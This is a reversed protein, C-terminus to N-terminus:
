MEGSQIQKMLQHTFRAAPAGDVIDHDFSLTLCLHERLETQDGTRIARKVIGGIVVNFTHSAIPVGWGAVGGIMNVSTVMITGARKKMQVPSRDLIRFFWSRVFAPISLYLKMTRYVEAETTEANKEDQIEKSIGPVSKRNASRIIRPVVMHQGATIREITTSVDVDHFLVLQNKRNRYAHIQPNKQVVRAIQVILYGTFSIFDGTERRM